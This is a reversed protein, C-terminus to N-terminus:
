RPRERQYDAVWEGVVQHLHRCLVEHDNLPFERLAGSELALQTAELTNCDQLAYEKHTARTMEHAVRERADRSPMFYLNGEFM